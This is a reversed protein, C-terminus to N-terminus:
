KLKKNKEPAINTAAGAFIPGASSSLLIEAHLGTHKKAPPSTM